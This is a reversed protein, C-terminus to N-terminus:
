LFTAIIINKDKTYNSCRTETSNNLAIITSGLGEFTGRSAAKTM